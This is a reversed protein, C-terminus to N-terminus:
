RQSSLVLRQIDKKWKKWSLEWIDIWKRLYKWKMWCNIQIVSVLMIMVSSSLRMRWALKWKVTLTFLLCFKFYIVDQILHTMLPTSYWLRFCWNKIEINISSLFDLANHELSSCIWVISFSNSKVKHTISSLSQEWSFHM